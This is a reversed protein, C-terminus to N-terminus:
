VDLMQEVVLQELLVLVLLRVLVLQELYEVLL